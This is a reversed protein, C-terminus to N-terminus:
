ADDLAMVLDTVKNRLSEIDADNDIVYDAWSEQWEDTPRKTYGDRRILVFTAGLYKLHKYENSKRLDTVAFDEDDLEKDDLAADIWVSPGLVERTGDGICELICRVELFERKAEEWGFADVIARVEPRVRYALERVKDAFAIRQFGFSEGLVKAVTDKGSGPAGFLAVIM